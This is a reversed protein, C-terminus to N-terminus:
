RGDIYINIKGAGETGRLSGVLARVVRDILDRVFFKMPVVKGDVFVNVRRTPNEDVYNEKIFKALAAHDEFSFSPLEGSGPDHDAVVAVPKKVESLDIEAVGKRAVVISPVIGTKYGEALVVDADHLYREVVENLDPEGNESRIAAVGAPTVVAVACAGARKHRWSDKGERDVDLEKLHHKVAAVRVGAAVLERIVNEMLTTKGSGSNGVFAIVPIM